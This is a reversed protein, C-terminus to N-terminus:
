CRLNLLPAVYEALFSIIEIALFIKLNKNHIDKNSDEPVVEPPPTSLPTPSPTPAPTPAPDPVSPPQPNVPNIQDNNDPVKIPDNINNDM